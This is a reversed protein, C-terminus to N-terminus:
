PGRNVPQGQTVLWAVPISVSGRRAGQLLEEIAGRDLAAPSHGQRSLVQMVQERLDSPSRLHYIDRYAHLVGDRTEVLDYRIELPVPRALRIRRTNRYSALLADIEADSVQPSAYRHVLRALEVVDRDLMRVCGHSAPTRLSGEAPTGHIYYLDQFYLKVRGMPNGPGPPTPREGRAWPSNPPHWWPNWEVSSIRFVGRPTRHGPQGVAVPYSRTVQGYEFVDIRYAPLNLVLRLPVTADPPGARGADGYAPEGGAGFAAILVLPVALTGPRIM